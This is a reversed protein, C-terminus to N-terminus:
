SVQNFFTEVADSSSSCISGRTHHNPCLLLLNEFARRTENTMSSDFRKGTPMASAIHAIEGIMTQNADFLVNNCSPEACENGSLLYLRRVVEQKPTLRKVVESLKNEETM